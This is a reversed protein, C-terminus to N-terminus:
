SHRLLVAGLGNRLADGEDLFPEPQQDGKAYAAIEDIVLLHPPKLVRATDGLEFVLRLERIALVPDAKIACFVEEIVSVCLLFSVSGKAKLAKLTFLDGDSFGLRKYLHDYVNTDLYVKKM